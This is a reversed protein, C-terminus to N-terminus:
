RRALNRFASPTTGTAARFRSSLQASSSFGTRRAIDAISLTTFSLLRKAELVRQHLVYAHPSLGTSVKFARAFHFPSLGALAALRPLRIPRALHAGVYERVRRVLFPPLGGHRESVPTGPLGHVRQLQVAFLETALDGFSDEESHPHQLDRAIGGLLHGLLPDRLVRWEPELSLATRHANAERLCDPDLYLEVVELTSGPGRSQWCIERPASGAGLVCLEGPAIDYHHWRGSGVERAELHFGADTAM